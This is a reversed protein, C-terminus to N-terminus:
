IISNITASERRSATKYGTSEWLPNIKRVAKQLSNPLQLDKNNKIQARKGETKRLHPNWKGIAIIRSM